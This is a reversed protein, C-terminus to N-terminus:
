NKSIIVAKNYNKRLVFRVFKDVVVSLYRFKILSIIRKNPVININFQYQNLEIKLQDINISISANPPVGLPSKTKNNWELYLILKGDQKLQSLFYVLYDKHTKLSTTRTFPYFEFCFILDYEGLPPNKPDIAQCFFKENKFREKAYSIGDRSIDIGVVLSDSYFNGLEHTTFGAGCGVDLINM